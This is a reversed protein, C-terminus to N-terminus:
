AASRNNVPRDTERRHPLDDAIDDIHCFRNRGTRKAAYLAEDARGYLRRWAREDALLGEAIGISVTVQGGHPMTAERIENLLSLATAPPLAEPTGLLAFEEGGLRAASINNGSRADIIRSVERLVLDGMDHGHTDNITKFRDIDILLLRSPGDDEGLADAFDLLARRNLLGTLPDTLALQDSQRRLKLLEVVQNHHVNIMRWQFLGALAFSVGAAMDLATGTVVLLASIPAIDIILHTAAGNRISAMCYATALAGMVLMVPFHLREHGDAGLWSAVAWSTCILAGICSSAFSEVVFKEARWPKADFQNDVTLKAMGFLCYAAMAGPLTWRVVWGAKEPTVYAAFPTTILLVAFLWFAQKQVQKAAGVLYDQRIDPPLDPIAMRFLASKFGRM